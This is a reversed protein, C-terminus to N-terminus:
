SDSAGRNIRAAEEPGLKSMWNLEKVKDISHVFRRLFSM